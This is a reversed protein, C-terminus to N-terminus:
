MQADGGRHQRRGDAPALRGIRTSGANRIGATRQEVCVSEIRPAHRGVEERKRPNVGGGRILGVRKLVELVCSDGVGNLVMAQGGGVGVGHEAPPAIVGLGLQERQDLLGDFRREVDRM